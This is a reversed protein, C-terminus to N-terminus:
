EPFKAVGGFHHQLGESGPTVESSEEVYLKRTRQYLARM